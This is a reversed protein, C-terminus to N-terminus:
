VNDSKCSSISSGSNQASRESFQSVMVMTGSGTIGSTEPGSSTQALSGTWYINSFKSGSNSNKAESTCPPILKKSTSPSTTLTVKVEPGASNHKKESFEQPCDSWNQM